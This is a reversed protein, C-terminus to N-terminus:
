FLINKKHIMYYIFPVFSLRINIQLEQQRIKIISMQFVLLIRHNGIHDCIGMQWLNDANDSNGMCVLVLVFNGMMGIDFNSILLRM